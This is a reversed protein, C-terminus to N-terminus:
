ARARPLVHVPPIQPPLHVGDWGALWANALKAPRRVGPTTTEWCKDRFQVPNASEPTTEWCTHLFRVGPGPRALWVLGVAGRRGRGCGGWGGVGCGGVPAE